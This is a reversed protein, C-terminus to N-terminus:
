KEATLGEIAERVVDKFVRSVQARDSDFQHDWALGFVERVLGETLIPKLSEDVLESQIGPLLRLLESLARERTRNEPM